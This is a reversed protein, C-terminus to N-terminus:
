RGVRDHSVNATTWGGDDDRGCWRRAAVVDDVEEVLYLDGIGCCLGIAGCLWMSAGTTLGHVNGGSIIISGAALFAVGSTVAEILRLPDTQVRASEDVDFASLEMALIAFIAAALSILM